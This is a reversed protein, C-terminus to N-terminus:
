KYRKWFPVGLALREARGERFSSVFSYTTQNAIAAYIFSKFFVAATPADCVFALGFIEGAGVCVLAFTGAVIAALCGLMFLAKKEAGLSDYWANFGPLYAALLSTIIGLVVNLEEVTM